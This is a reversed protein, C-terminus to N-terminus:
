FEDKVSSSKAWTLILLQSSKVRHWLRHVLVIHCMVSWQEYFMKLSILIRTSRVLNCGFICRVSCRFQNCPDKKSPYALTEACMVYELKTCFKVGYERLGLHNSFICIMRHLCFFVLLFTYDNIPLHRSSFEFFLQIKPSKLRHLTCFISKKVTWSYHEIIWM